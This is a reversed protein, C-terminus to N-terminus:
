VNDGITEWDIEGLYICAVDDIDCDKRFEYIKFEHPIYESESLAYDLAETYTAFVESENGNDIDRVFYCVISNM